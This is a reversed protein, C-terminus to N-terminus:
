QKSLEIVVIESQTGVRQPPGWTGAGSTTLVTLNGYKNLGYDFGKHIWKTIYGLPWVQGQHTHGSVMVDIGAEAAAKIALPAHKLMISPKSKDIAMVSLTKALGENSNNGSYDTGVFQLGQLEVTQNNIIKVGAAKLATLYAHSDRFEEHNGSTFYIGQPPHVNDSMTQALNQFDAPPGDYYDGPILVIEPQQQNILKAVSRIFSKGRINGLHTDAVFVVKKGQWAEPLNPLQIKYTVVQTQYSHYLGYASILIALGFLATALYFDALNIGFFKAVYRALWAFITALFLWYFTGMWIASVTYLGNIIPGIFNNALVSTVLFSVALVVFTIKLNQLVQPSELNFFKVMTTYVWLHGFIVISQIVVLLLLGKLLMSKM